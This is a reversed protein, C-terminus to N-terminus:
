GRSRAPRGDPDAKRAQRRAPMRAPAAPATTPAEPRDPRTATEADPRGGHSVNGVVAQGGDAVHVNKVVMAPPFRGRHRDLAAVQREFLSLLKVAHRYNMDRIAPDHVAAAARRLCEMAEDHTLLMQAALM